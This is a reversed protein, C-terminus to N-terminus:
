EPSEKLRVLQSGPYYQSLIDRYGYGLEGLYKMGYQCMGVGHGWGRGKFIFKGDAASIRVILNSKLKEPGMWVRFADADVDKDMWTSGIIISHARGSEDTRGLRVSQVEQVPIGGKKAM